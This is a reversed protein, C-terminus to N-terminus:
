FSYTLNGTVMWPNSIDDNTGAGTRFDLADKAVLYGVGLAFKLNKYLEIENIVDFEYGITSDDRRADSAKVANGLTNGNDTTDGIYLAQLTLKYAPTVKYSGYLKAFWTGGFGANVASGSIANTLGTVGRNIWSSYVVLSEGLIAPTESGPPVVYGEVKRNTASPTGVRDTKNADSGTTYMGVVGFNFKEWPYDIKLRTLWGSYDVDRFGTRSEVEGNDYVFDFNLNVPGFKGDAYTGLWWFDARNATTGIPYTNMNYYMGYAGITFTSIKASAQIGYVDVDDATQDAGEFAKFWFPSITLPDPKIGLVVGMGDTYVLVNNRISLPQLGVRATMPVPIGFYPIGFDFYINKLEAAGRDGNWVGLLNREDNGAGPAPASEGWRNSDFEFFITGSLNKGMVADFKLRARTQLYSVTDEFAAGGPRISAPAIDFLGATGAAAGENVIFQSDIFGSAKFELKPAEQSYAVAGFALIFMAALITVFFKKM